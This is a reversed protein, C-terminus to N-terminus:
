KRKSKYKRLLCLFAQSIWVFAFSGGLLSWVNRHDRKLMWFAFYYKQRWIIANRLINCNFKIRIIRLFNRKGSNEWRNEGYSPEFSAFTKKKPIRVILFTKQNEVTLLVLKTYNHQLPSVFNSKHFLFNQRTTKMQRLETQPSFTGGSVQTHWQEVARAKFVDHGTLNLIYRSIEWFFRPLQLHYSLISLFTQM